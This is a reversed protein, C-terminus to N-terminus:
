ATEINKKSGLPTPRRFPLGYQKSILNATIRASEYITPLGSGPHTGGGALWCRRLEEFRNRPRFYLMQNLTHALNFTAGRYVRYEAEWDLPTIVAEAKIHTRIGALGARRELADLVRDRFAARERNWDIGSAQNPVPVLV